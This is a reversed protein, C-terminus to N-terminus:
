VHLVFEPCFSARAEPTRLCLNSTKQCYANACSKYGNWHFHYAFETVFKLKRYISNYSFCTSLFRTLQRNFLIITRYLSYDLMKIRQKRKRTSISMYGDRWFRSSMCSVFSKNISQPSPLKKNQRFESVKRLNRVFQEWEVSKIRPGCFAIKRSNAPIDQPPSFHLHNM